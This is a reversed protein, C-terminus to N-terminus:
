AKHLNTAALSLMETTDWAQPRRKLRFPISLIDLSGFYETRKMLIAAQQFECFFLNKEMPQLM